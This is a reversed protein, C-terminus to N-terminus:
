NNGTPPATAARRPVGFILDVTRDIRDHVQRMTLERNDWNRMLGNLVSGCIEAIEGADRADTDALIAVLTQVFKESVDGYLRRVVPDSNSEFLMVLRWFNPHREFATAASRLATRLREADTTSKSPHLRFRPGFEAAWDVLVQAYLQEKSPFYRYLTALAVDAAEAVHRIQIKQYDREDLLAVAASIIRDRRARKSRSRVSAPARKPWEEADLAAM